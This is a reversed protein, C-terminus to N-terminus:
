NQIATLKNGEFYLYSGGYVWQEHTGWSGISKNIDDPYGWSEECMAKTMGIRVKGELILNANAAGFKKTLVTKRKAKNAATIAKVNDYYSKIQFRGCVYPLAEDLLTKYPKGDEAELYGKSPTMGLAADLLLVKMKHEYFAVIDNGTFGFPNKAAVM